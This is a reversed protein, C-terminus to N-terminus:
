DRIGGRGKIGRKDRKDRLFVLSEEFFLYEIKQIPM